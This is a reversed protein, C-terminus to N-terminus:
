FSSSSFFLSAYVSYPAFDSSSFPRLLIYMHFCPFTGITPWFLGFNSAAHLAVFFVISSLLGQFVSSWLSSSFSSVSISCIQSVYIPLCVFFTTSWVSATRGFIDFYWSLIRLFAIGELEHVYRCTSTTQINPLPYTTSALIIQQNPTRIVIDIHYRESGLEKGSERLNTSISACVIDLKHQHIWWCCHDWLIKESFLTFRKRLLTKCKFYFNYIFETIM